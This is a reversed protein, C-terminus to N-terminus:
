YTVIGPGPMTSVPEQTGPQGVLEKKAANLAYMLNAGSQEAENKLYDYAESDISRVFDSIENGGAMSMRILSISQELLYDKNMASFATPEGSQLGSQAQSHLKNAIKQALQKIMKVPETLSTTGDPNMIVREILRRLQRRNTNLRGPTADLAENIMTNMMNIQGANSRLVEAVDMGVIDYLLYSVNAATFSRESIPGLYRNILSDTDMTMVTEIAQPSHRRQQPLDLISGNRESLAQPIQGTAKYKEIRKHAIRKAQSYDDPTYVKPKSAEREADFQSQQALTPEIIRREILRRLQMRTVKMNFEMLRKM